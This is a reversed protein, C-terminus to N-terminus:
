PRDTWSLLRTLVRISAPPEPQTPVGGTLAEHATNVYTFLDAVLLAAAAGVILALLVPVPRLM